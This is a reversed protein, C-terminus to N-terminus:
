IRPFSLTYNYHTKNSKPSYSKWVRCLLEKSEKHVVEYFEFAFADRLSIPHSMRGKYIHIRVQYQNTNERLIRAQAPPIEAHHIEGLGKCTFGSFQQKDAEYAKLQEIDYYFTNIKQPVWKSQIVKRYPNIVERQLKVIRNTHLKQILRNFFPFVEKKMKKIKEDRIETTEFEDGGTHSYIYLSWKESLSGQDKSVYTKLHIKYLPFKEQLRAEITDFLAARKEEHNKEKLCITLTRTLDSRSYKNGKIYVEFKELLSTSSQTTRLFQGDFVSFKDYTGFLLFEDTSGMRYEPIEQRGYKKCGIQNITYFPISVNIKTQYIILPKDQGILPQIVGILLLWLTINQM